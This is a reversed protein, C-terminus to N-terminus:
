VHARGIKCAPIYGLGSDRYFPKKDDFSEELRDPTIGSEPFMTKEVGLTDLFQELERNGWREKGPRNEDPVQDIAFSKEWTSRELLEFAPHMVWPKLWDETPVLGKMLMPTIALERASRATINVHYRADNPPEAVLLPAIEIASRANKNELLRLPDVQADDIVRRKALFSVISPSGHGWPNDPRAVSREGRFQGM